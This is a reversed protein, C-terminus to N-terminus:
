QVFTRDGRALESDLHNRILERAKSAFPVADELDLQMCDAM